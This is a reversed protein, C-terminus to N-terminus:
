RGARAAMPESLAPLEFQERQQGNITFACTMPVTARLMANVPCYRTMSLEIARRANAAHLDGAFEHDYTIHTFVRPHEDRREGRAQVRYGSPEQRMKRLIAVVDMATCAAAALLQTTMPSVGRDEGGDDPKVDMLLTRGAEDTALFAM